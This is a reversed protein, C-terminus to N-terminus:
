WFSNIDDVGSCFIDDVSLHFSFIIDEFGNQVLSSIILHNLYVDYSM